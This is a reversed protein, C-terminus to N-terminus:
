KMALVAQLMEDVTAIMRAAAQYSQEYRMMDVMEEDLSVATSQERQLRSQLFFAQSSQANENATKGDVGIRTVLSSYYERLSAGAILARDKLGAIQLALANDGDADTSAAAIKNADAAIEDAVRISSASIFRNDFFSIDTEGEVTYGSKHLANIQEVVTRALTDLRKQYEAITSDRLDLLGKLKGSQVIIEAGDPGYIKIIPDEGDSETATHLSVAKDMEVLNIAGLYIGVGGVGKQVVKIDILESLRDILRDRADLMDNARTADSALAPIKENMSAIQELLRNIEQVIESIQGNATVKQDKVRGAMRHFAATLANASERVAIRAQSSEPDNALDQWSNFFEDLRTGIGGGDADSFAADIQQLVSNKTEWESVTSQAERYMQDVFEDRSRAISTINVGLGIRGWPTEIAGMEGFQVTQRSYGETNVNSINNGVVNQAYQQAILARKGTQILGFLGSM